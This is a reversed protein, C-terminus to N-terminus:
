IFSRVFLNIKMSIYIRKGKQSAKPNTNEKQIATYNASTVQFLFQRLPSLNVLLWNKYRRITNAEM